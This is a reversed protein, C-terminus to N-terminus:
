AAGTRAREILATRAAVGGLCSRVLGVFPGQPMHGHQSPRELDDHDNPPTGLRARECRILAVALADTGRRLHVAASASLHGDRTAAAATAEILTQWDRAPSPLRRCAGDLVTARAALKLPAPVPGGRPYAAALILLVPVTENLASAAALLRDGASYGRGHALDSLAARLDHALLAAATHQAQLARLLLPEDQDTGAPLLSLRLVLQEDATLADTATQRAHRAAAIPDGPLVEAFSLRHLAPGAAQLLLRLRSIVTERDPRRDLLPATAGDIADLEYGILDVLLHVTLRDRRRLADGATLGDDDPGLLPLLGLGLYSEPGPDLAAGLFASLRMTAPDHAPAPLAERIQTLLRHVGGDVAHRGRHRLAAVVPAYPFVAANGTRQWDALVTTVSM